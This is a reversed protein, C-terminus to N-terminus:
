VDEEDVNAGVVLHISEFLPTPPDYIKPHTVVSLFEHVSSWPIAWPKGFNALDTLRDLAKGHWQSDERHACVLINTDVAIM